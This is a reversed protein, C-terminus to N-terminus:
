PKGIGALLEATEVANIAMLRLNDAAAWLWFGKANSADARLDGVLVESLNAAGAASPAEVDKRRLDLPAGALAKEVEGLAPASAFELYFSFSHSHFCPAQVVRLAPALEDAGLLRALHRAIRAEVELLAPRSGEGLAPLLNFAAQSEFVERPLEHFSLLNLTQKHLEDVGAEGRESAPEFIHVILRSLPLAASLRRIVLAIVLAAPHAAIVVRGTNPPLKRTVFPGAVPAEPVEQELADTLDIVRSGEREAMKWYHQTFLTSSTFFSFDTGKFSGVEISRVFTPEGQFETLQGKLDEEDLLSLARVPFQRQTLIEKLEKAKLTSAGVLAVKFDSETM